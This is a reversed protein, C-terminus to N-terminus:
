AVLRNKLDEDALNGQGDLVKHVAPIFVRRNFLYANRYAFVMQLQEVARLGGYYGAALGIFAVPRCEFSEPFPLLDIFHKLIGPFSGNYEPVVVVLGDAGLVKNIFGEVVMEPKEKYANGKFAEVPLSCLDLMEVEEGLGRYQGAVERAVKISNNGTRNTGAIVAIM